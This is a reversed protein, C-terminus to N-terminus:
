WLFSASYRKAFGWLQALTSGISDTECLVHSRVNAANLSKSPPLNLEKVLIYSQQVCKIESTFLSAYCELIPEVAKM